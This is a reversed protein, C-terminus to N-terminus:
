WMHRHHHRPPQKLRGRSRSAHCISVIDYLEVMASTVVMHRLQLTVSVRARAKGARPLALRGSAGCEMGHASGFAVLLRMIVQAHLVELSRSQITVHAHACALEAPPQASASIPGAAMSRSIVRNCIAVVFKSGVFLEKAHVDVPKRNRIIASAHNWVVAVLSLAHFGTAGVEM